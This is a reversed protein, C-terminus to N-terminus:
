DASPSQIEIDTVSFKTNIFPEFSYSYNDKIILPTEKNILIEFEHMYKSYPMMLLVKSGPNLIFHLLCCRNDQSDYDTPSDFDIPSGFELAISPDLTTSMFQSSKYIDTNREKKYNHFYFDKVGRWVEITKKVPPANNIIENLDSMFMIIAEKWMEAPVFPGAKLFTQYNQFSYDDSLEKFSKNDNTKKREKNIDVIQCFFPFIYRYWLKYKYGYGDDKNPTDFLDIIDQGMFKGQIYSNILQDGKHSYNAITIIQRKTLSEAYNFQSRFFGPSLKKNNKSLYRLNVVDIYRGNKRRKLFNKVTSTSRIENSSETYTNTSYDEDPQYSTVYVPNINFNVKKWGNM